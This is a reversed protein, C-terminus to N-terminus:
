RVKLKELIEVKVNIAATIAEGPYEKGSYQKGNEYGDRKIITQLNELINIDPSAENKTFHAILLYNFNIPQSM